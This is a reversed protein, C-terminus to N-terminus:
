DHDTDEEDEDKAAFAAPTIFPFGPFRRSEKDYEGAVDWTVLCDRCFWGVTQTEGVDESDYAEWDTEGDATFSAGQWIEAKERTGINGGGCDPCVLFEQETM